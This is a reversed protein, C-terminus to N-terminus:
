TYYTLNYTIQFKDDLLCGVDPYFRNLLSYAHDSWSYDQVRFTTIDATARQRAFDVYAFNRDQVFRSLEIDAENCGDLSSNTLNLAVNPLSSSSVSSSSQTVSSRCVNSTTTAPTTLSSASPLSPSPSGTNSDDGIAITKTTSTLGAALDIELSQNKVLEEQTDNEPFQQRHESISRMKHMLQELSNQGAGPLSDLSGVTQTASTWGSPNSMQSSILGPSPKDNCLPPSPPTSRLTNSMLLDSLNNSQNSGAPSNQLWSSDFDNFGCGFVFSALSHFHALLVIAQVLESLSWSDDGKTLREIHEKTLLWPQHALLKNIENLNRLKAPAHELGLLWKPDGGLLRYEEKQDNVWFKCYHRAAAKSDLSNNRVCASLHLDLDNPLRFFSIFFFHL